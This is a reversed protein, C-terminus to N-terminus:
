PKLFHGFRQRLTSLDRLANKRTDGGGRGGVGHDNGIINVERAVQPDTCAATSSGSTSAELIIHQQELPLADVRPPDAPDFIAIHEDKKQSCLPPITSPSTLSSIDAQGAECVIQSANIHHDVQNHKRRPLVPPGVHGVPSPNKDQTSQERDIVAASPGSVSIDRGGRGSTRGATITSNVNSFPPAGVDVVSTEDDQKHRKEPVKSQQVNQRRGDGGAAGDEGRPRSSIQQSSSHTHTTHNYSEEIRPGGVFHQDQHREGHEVAVASKAEAADHQESLNRGRGTVEAERTHVYRGDLRLEQQQTKSTFDGHGRSASSCSGFTDGRSGSGQHANIFDPDVRRSEEVEELIRARRGESDTSANHPEDVNHDRMHHRGAAETRGEARRHPEGIGVYRREPEARAENERKRLAQLEQRYRLEDLSRESERQQEQELVVKEKAHHERSRPDEVHIIHERGGEVQAIQHERRRELHFDEVGPDEFAHERPGHHQRAAHVPLERDPLEQHQQARMITREEPVLCVQGREDERRHQLVQQHEGRVREEDPQQHHPRLRAENEAPMGDAGRMRSSLDGERLQLQERRNVNHQETRLQQVRQGEHEFAHQRDNEFPHSRSAYERGRGDQRGMPRAREERMLIEDRERQLERRRLEAIAEERTIRGSLFAERLADDDMKLHRRRPSQSLEHDPEVDSFSSHHSRQQQYRQQREVFRHNVEGLHQILTEQGRRQLPSLHRSANDVIVTRSDQGRHFEGNEIMAAGRRTRVSGTVSGEEYQESRPLQESERMSRSDMNRDVAPDEDRVVEGHAAALRGARLREMVRQTELELRELERVNREHEDVEHSRHMEEREEQLRQMGERERSIQIERRYRMQADEKVEALQMPSPIRSIGHRGAGSQEFRPDDDPHLAAM